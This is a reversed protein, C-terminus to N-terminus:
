SGEDLWFEWQYEKAELLYRPKVSASWSDDGGIGMHYGDLYVHLGSGPIQDLEHTHRSAHLQAQSFRSVSFHFDGTVTPNTAGMTHAPTAIPTTRM